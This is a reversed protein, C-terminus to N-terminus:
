NSAEPVLGGELFRQIAQLVLATHTIFPTHSDTDIEYIQLHEVYGPIANFTDESFAKDHESWILLSPVSVQADKEPWFHSDEIKDFDPINAQYWKIAAEAAGPQSWAALFAHKYSESVIGQELLSENKGWFLDAGKFWYFLKAKWSTLLDVYASAQRQSESTHLMNLLVNFPPANIVVLKQILEPYQQALAWALVGGWDHGIVVVQQNPAVHHIFLKVDEVLKEIQYDEIENPKDSYAYGRLDPAFTHYTSSLPELLPHWSEAFYPFGHLMVVASGSGKAIYHFNIGNLNVQNSQYGLFTKAQIREKADDVLPKSCSTLLALLIIVDRCRRLLNLVPLTIGKSRVM